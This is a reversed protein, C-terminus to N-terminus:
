IVTLSQNKSFLHSVKDINQIQNLAVTFSMSLIQRSECDCSEYEVRTLRMACAEGEASATAFVDFHVSWASPIHILPHGGGVELSNDDRSAGPDM